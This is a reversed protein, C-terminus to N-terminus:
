RRRCWGTPRATDGSLDSDALDLGIAAHEGFFEDEIGLLTSGRSAFHRRQQLGLPERGTARYFPEAM